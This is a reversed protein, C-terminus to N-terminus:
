VGGGDSITWGYTAILNARATDSPSGNTYTSGGFDITIANPPAQGDWALLLADYNVTSLGNANFMFNTASTILTSDWGSLDQDFDDCDSLMSSISTNVGFTWSGIDENYVDCSAFMSVFSTVSGVDWGGINASVLSPCNQFMQTFTTANSVDWSSLDITTLTTCANFMSTFDLCSTVDWSSVDITTLSTCLTFFGELTTVSSVDWESLNISTLSLCNYFTRYLNTTAITPSDDATISTLSFCWYFTQDTTITLSGYNYINTLKGRDSTFSFQWGACTGLIRIEYLGDAPYTHLTEAQNYTTIIDSTGDGWDVTMNYTGSVVLPLKFQNSSSFGTIATNVGIIFKDSTFDMKATKVSEDKLATAYVTTGDAFFTAVDMTNLANVLGDINLPFFSKTQPTNLALTVKDLKFLESSLDWSVLNQNDANAFDGSLGDLVTIPVILNTNNKIRLKIDEKGLEM